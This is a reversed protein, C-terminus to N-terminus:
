PHMNSLYFACDFAREFHLKALGIIEAQKCLLYKLVSFCYLINNKLRFRTVWTAPAVVILLIVNLMVVRVIIVSLMIVNLMAVSLIIVSLMIINLM